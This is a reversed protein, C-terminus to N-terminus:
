EVAGQFAHWGDALPSVFQNPEKLRTVCTESAPPMAARHETSKFPGPTRAGGAQLKSMKLQGPTRAGGAVDRQVRRTRARGVFHSVAANGSEDLGFEKLYHKSGKVAKGGGRLPIGAARM